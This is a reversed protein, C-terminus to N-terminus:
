YSWLHGRQYRYSREIKVVGNLDLEQSKLRLCSDITEQNQILWKGDQYLVKNQAKLKKEMRMDAMEWLQETNVNDRDWKLHLITRNNEWEIERVGSSDASTLVLYCTIHYECM